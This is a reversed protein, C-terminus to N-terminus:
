SQCAATRLVHAVGHICTGSNSVSAFQPGRREVCLDVMGRNNVRCVARIGAGDPFGQREIMRERDLVELPYEM